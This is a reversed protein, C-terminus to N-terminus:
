NCLMGTTKLHWRLSCVWTEKPLPLELVRLLAVSGGASSCHCIHHLMVMSTMCFTGLVPPLSPMYKFGMKLKMYVVKDICSYRSSNRCPVAVCTHSHASRKTSLPVQLMWLVVHGSRTAMAVVATGGDGSSPLLVPLWAHTTCTLAITRDLSDSVDKPRKSPPEECSHSLPHTHM